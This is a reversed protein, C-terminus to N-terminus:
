LKIRNVCIFHKVDKEIYYVTLVIIHLYYCLLYAHTTSINYNTM